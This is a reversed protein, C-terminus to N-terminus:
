EDRVSEKVTIGRYVTGRNTHDKPFRQRLQTGFATSTLADERREECWAKYTAYLRAARCSLREDVECKELVFLQINDCEEQWETVSDTVEKPPNLGQEYWLRAGRVAWALIGPAEERLKAVRSRDIQDRPIQQQCPISHLRSFTAPDANPVSPRDNCDVWLKHTEAFSIFNEFLHRARIKGMGQTLRKLKSPSLKAGPDPESSMVFRIGCLDAMDSNTANNERNALLTNIQILGGYDEGLAERFATLMTTKGTGGPGFVFFIIKEKTSGCLSYGFCRQLYDVLEQKGNMMFHLLNFWQPCEADRDFDHPIMKTIWDERRQSGFSSDRLDLTGNQFNLLWPDRDFESAMVVLDPQALSLAYELPKANLSRKAFREIAEDAREIAAKLFAAMVLRADKRVRQKSDVGWRQGDWHFWKKREASYRLDKGYVAVIRDANGADHLGFQLLDIAPPRPLWNNEREPLEILKMEEM